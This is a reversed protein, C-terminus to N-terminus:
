EHGEAPYAGPRSFRPPEPSGFFSHVGPISGDSCRDLYDDVHIPEEFETSPSVDYTNFRWEDLVTPRFQKIHLMLAQEKSTRESRLELGSRIRTLIYLVVSDHIYYRGDYIISQYKGSKCWMSVKEPVVAKGSMKSLYDAAETRGYYEHFNEPKDGAIKAKSKRVPM